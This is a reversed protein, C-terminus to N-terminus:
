VSNIWIELRGKYKSSLKEKFIKQWEEVSQNFIEMIVEWEDEGDDPLDIGGGNDLISVRFDMLSVLEMELWCGVKIGGIEIANICEEGCGCHQPSDAEGGGDSYPGKPYEDSDYCDLDEPIGGKKALDECIAKGCDECYIDAQYIYVDM